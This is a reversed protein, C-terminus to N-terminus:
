RATSTIALPRDQPSVKCLNWRSSICSRYHHAEIRVNENIRSSRYGVDPHHPRTVEDGACHPSCRADQQELGKCFEAVHRNAFRSYRDLVNSLCNVSPAGHQWYLRSVIAIKQGCKLSHPRVSQCEPICPTPYDIEYIEVPSKERAARCEPLGEFARHPIEALRRKAPLAQQSTVIRNRSSVLIKDSKTRRGCPRIASRMLRTPSRRTQVLM